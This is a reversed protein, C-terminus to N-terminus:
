SWPKLQKGLVKVQNVQPSDFHSLMEGLEDDSMEGRGKEDSGGREIAVGVGREVGPRPRHPRGLEYAAQRGQSKTNSTDYRSGALPGWQREGNGERARKWRDKLVLPPGLPVHSRARLHAPLAGHMNCKDSLQSDTKAKAKANLAKKMAFYRVSTVVGHKDM